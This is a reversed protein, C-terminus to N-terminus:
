KIYILKTIIRKIDNYNHLKISTNICILTM